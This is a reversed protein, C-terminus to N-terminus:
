DLNNRIKFEKNGKGMQRIFDQMEKTLLLQNQTDWYTKKYPFKLKFIDKQENVNSKIKENGFSSTTHLLIEIEFLTTDATEKPQVEITINRKAYNMFYKESLEDKYFSIATNAKLVRSYSNTEKVDDYSFLTKVNFSLIANDNGNIIYHGSSFSTNDKRDSSFNVQINTNDQFPKEIVEFGPGMANLRLTESYISYLSPFKFYINNQDRLIGLQRMHEIRISFDDKTLELDGTYIATKRHVKGQIDQLRIMTDNRRLITRIFFTETHPKLVYNTAISDKIKQYITKANTVVVEDLEFISKNLFVTDSLQNFAIKKKEYGTHYFIVSDLNSSFAFRGDANTMTHNKTNFVSVFEIPAASLSDIVVAEHNNQCLLLFPIFLIVKTLNIKM